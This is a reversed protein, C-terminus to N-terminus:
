SNMAPKIDHSWSLVSLMTLNMASAREIPSGTDRGSTLSDAWSKSTTIM